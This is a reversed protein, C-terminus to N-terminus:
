KKGSLTFEIGKPEPKGLLRYIEGGEVTGKEILLNAVKAVDDINNAILNEAKKYEEALISEVEKDVDKNSAQAGSLFKPSMGYKMVMDRAIHRARELDSSAGAGQGKGCKQEAITGCFLMGIEARMDQDTIAYHEQLPMPRVYGLAGGRPQITVKHVANLKGELMGIVHGAEHWATIKKAEDSQEMGHSERGITINEFAQEVHSMMVLKSKENVALLAAENVLNALKAGSFGQTARAIRSIDVDKDHAINKFKIELLQRRDAIYPNDVHVTRDFRGPRTAASDLAEIRNTAGIIIVPAKSNKLGDVEALFAAVTNNHESDGGSGANGSRKSLLADIEDIFIICPAEKRAAAFLERIRAAGTGVYKEVFSSGTISIFPCNAEGAVAQAMLTKGNGPGGNMLVGKPITAGIANFSNSNKLFNIIDKFDEKPGALGAVDLFTTKMDGPYSIDIEYSADITAVMTEKMADFAKQVHKMEVCVSKDKVALLAAQNVLNSLDAGSFGSTIKAIQAVDLNMAHCVRKFDINLLKERDCMKPKKIEVNRDFRGPRIAARDLSDLRNTAGIIIIPSTSNQLGDVAALFAAVTQNHEGNRDTHGGARKAILSDIEDIFIICPGQRRALDFLNRIRKAGVGAFMEIFSSGAVSIFTCNVEGAVAKALLTKGNGPGGYMLIGKPARAGMRNYKEPNRLYEIIDQMGEKADDLGAVDKFTTKITHPYYVDFGDVNSAQESQHREVQPAQHEVKPSNIPEPAQTSQSVESEPTEFKKIFSSQYSRFKAADFLQICAIILGVGIGGIVCNTLDSGEPTEMYERTEQAVLCCGETFTEDRDERPVYYTQYLDYGLASILAGGVVCAMLQETTFNRMGYPGAQLEEQSSNFASILLFSLMLKRKFNM